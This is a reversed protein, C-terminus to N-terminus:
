CKFSTLKQYDIKQTTTKPLESVQVFEDPLMYKPLYKLCFDRIEVPDIQERKELLSYFIKILVMRQSGNVAIAGVELINPHQHLANEIEALEVRYGRRKVMRDKRGLFIFAGSKDVRVFDGTKYWINGNIKPFSTNTKEKLNLYGKAVSEGKVILEGEKGILPEIIKDNWIKCETFDCPFGIPFPYKHDEGITNPIKFCTVVNTETPGYLNYFTSQSWIKKLAKLPEIAFVEGAFLIIKLSSHDRRNLKGYRLLLKLLTPTAYLTTIQFFDIHQSLERPNLILEQNILIITASKSLGVFLDFISLDFHFPAVSAFVENESFPFFRISWNIFSLANHHTILVGKPNGTSGSTYLIYALDAPVDLNIEKSIIQLFTIDFGRIDHSIIKGSFADEFDSSISKDIFVGKVQSDEFIYTSRILPASFDAPVYAAEAELIALMCTVCAISKPMFVGIRDGKEVKFQRLHHSLEIVKIHLESYSIKNGNNEILSIRQPFKTASNRIIKSLHM